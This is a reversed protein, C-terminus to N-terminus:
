NIVCSNGTSEGGNFTRDNSTRPNNFYSELNSSLFGLNIIHGGSVYPVLTQSHMIGDSRIFGEIGAPTYSVNQTKLYGILIAAASTIIPTAQSTGRVRAWGGGLTTSLLGGNSNTSNEAGPAAIEAYTKSYNAFSSLRTGQTDISTVSIAGKLSPGIYAPAYLNQATIEDSGNGTAATVVIGANIADIMADEILSNQGKAEVSLNIIDAGHSIAYQISNYINQSSGNGDQDLAKLAMIEVYDGTLGAVGFSNNEMAAVLGAVHTGHGDDDLPQTNPSIFNYGHNGNSHTWMREALDPHRFDVGSDVFAIVVKETIQAQLARSQNHSVYSLHGQSIAQPDNVPSTISSQTRSMKPNETVALFCPNLKMESVLVESSSDTTLVLNLAAKKFQKQSESLEIKATSIECAGRLKSSM